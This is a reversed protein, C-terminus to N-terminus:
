ESLVYVNGSDVCAEKWVCGGEVCDTEVGDRGSRYKGWWWWWEGWACSRRRELKVDASMRLAFKLPLLRCPAYRIFATANLVLKSSAFRLSTSMSLATMFSTLQCLRQLRPTCLTRITRQPLLAEPDDGMPDIHPQMSALQMCAAAYLRGICALLTPCAHGPKSMCATM